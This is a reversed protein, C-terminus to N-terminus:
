RGDKDLQSLIIEMEILLDSYKERLDMEIM